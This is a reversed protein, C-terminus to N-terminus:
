ARKGAVGEVGETIRISPRDDLQEAAAIPRDALEGVV